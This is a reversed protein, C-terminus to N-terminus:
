GEKNLWNIIDQNFPKPHVYRQEYIISALLSADRMESPTYQCDVIFQIMTDVLRKFHADSNYRDRPTM